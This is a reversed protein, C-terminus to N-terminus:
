ALLGLRRFTLGQTLIILKRIYRCPFIATFVLRFFQVFFFQSKLIYLERLSAILLILIVSFTQLCFSAVDGPSSFVYSNCSMEGSMDNRSINSTSLASRILFPSSGTAKSSSQRSPIQPAHEMYILPRGCPGSCVVAHWSSMLLKESPSVMTTSGHRAL